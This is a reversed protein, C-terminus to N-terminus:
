CIYKPFIRSIIFRSSEFNKLVKTGQRRKKFFLGVLRYILFGLQYNHIYSFHVLLVTPVTHEPGSAACSKAPISPTSLDSNRHVMLVRTPKLLAWIVWQPLSYKTLSLIFGMLVVTVLSSLRLHFLYVWLLRLTSLFFVVQNFQVLYLEADMKFSWKGLKGSVM